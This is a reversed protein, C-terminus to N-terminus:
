ILPWPSARHPCRRSVVQLIRGWKSGAVRSKRNDEVKNSEDAKSNSTPARYTLDDRSAGLPLLTPNSRM